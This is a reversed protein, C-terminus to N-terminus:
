KNEKQKRNDENVALCAKLINASAEQSLKYDAHIRETIGKEINGHSVFLIDSYKRLRKAVIENGTILFNESLRELLEAVMAVDEAYRHIRDVGTVEPKTKM